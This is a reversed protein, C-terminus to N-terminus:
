VRTKHPVQNGQSYEQAHGSGGTTLDKVEGYKQLTPTTYLKKFKSNVQITNNGDKKKM